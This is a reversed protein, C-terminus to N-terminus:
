DVEEVKHVSSATAGMPGGPPNSMPFPFPVSGMGHGGGGPNSAALTAVLPGAASEVEQQKAAIASTSATPSSEIWTLAAKILTELSTKADRQEKNLDTATISGLTSKLRDCTSELHSKATHRAVFAADEDSNQKAEAILRQIQETTLRGADNKITIHKTANTSTETATITLLSNADLDFCVKIQPSGRPGPPIGSLEFEGLKHNDSSKSREGEFIKIRVATQNDAYTSFLQEKKCPIQSNRPILKTMIEGATELGLSLPAIDLVLPADADNVMMQSMTAAQLAAGYAVAEDPNIALSLEKGGFFDKVLQQVKPIRTSGGVMVVHHIDAKSLKSDSLAREVPGLCSRFYDGCLEEFRARSISSSFDHGEFLSDIEVTATVQSSLLRKARECATRLRRLASKSARMNTKTKANFEKIFYEMMRQDFDEGGLHTDGSTSKVEYVTEDITVISVDFTGGGLDFVLINREPANNRTKAEKFERGYALAAATPENLIRIVNLGAITGADKTAQRQADDFYAPVTVVADVVPHGLYDEATKKMKQLVM